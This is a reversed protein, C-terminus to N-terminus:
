KSRTLAGAPHGASRPPATSRRVMLRAPLLVRQPSLQEGSLRRLVLSAAEAAIERGPLGFTTLPADFFDAYPMNDVAIISLDRPITLNLNRAEKQVWTALADNFCFVATTDRRGVQAWLLAPDPDMLYPTLEHPAAGPETPPVLMRPELGVERMAKVYGRARDRVTTTRTGPLHVIRTHGLELLHRTAEYGIRENDASVYDLDLDLLTDLYRAMLVVVVGQARLEGILGDMQLGAPVVMLLAALKQDLLGRIVGHMTEFRENHISMDVRLGAERLRFGLTAALDAYYLHFDADPVVIGVLDRERPARRREVVFTGAGVLSELLGEDILGRIAQRVTSRSVGLQEGLTREAALAQGPQLTGDLLQERIASRLRQHLPATGQQRLERRVRDVNLM